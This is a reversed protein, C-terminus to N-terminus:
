YQYLDEKNEELMEGFSNQRRLPSLLFLDQWYGLKCRAAFQNKNLYIGM